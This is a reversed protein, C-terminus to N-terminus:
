QGRRRSAFSQVRVPETRRRAGFGRRPEFAAGLARISGMGDKGGMTAIHRVSPFLAQPTPARLSKKPM